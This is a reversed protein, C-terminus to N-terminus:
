FAFVSVSPFVVASIIIGVLPLVWFVNVGGLYFSAIAGLGHCLLFSLCFVVYKIADSKALDQAKSLDDLFMRINIIWFLIAIIVKTM